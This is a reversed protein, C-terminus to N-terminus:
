QDLSCFPFLLVSECLVVTLKRQAEVALGCVCSLGGVFINRMVAGIEVSLGLALIFLFM